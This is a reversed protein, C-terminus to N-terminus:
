IKRLKKGVAIAAVGLGFLSLSAPEPVASEEIGGVRVQAIDTINVPATAIFSVSAIQQVADSEVNIFNQGSAGLALVQTFLNNFQDYASVTISGDASADLNFVIRDFISGNLFRIDLNTFGGDQAEIRAQGGAPVILEETGTFKLLAGNDATGFIVLGADGQNLDITGLAGSASQDTNIIISANVSTALVGLLLFRHLVKRM